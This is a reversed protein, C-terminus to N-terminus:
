ARVPDHARGGNRIIVDLDLSSPVSPDRDVLADVDKPLQHGALDADGDGAGVALGRRGGHGGPCEGFKAQIRGEDNTANGCVEAHVCVCAITCVEHGLGVLVVVHEEAQERAHFHDRIEFVVMRIAEWGEGVHPTGEFTEDVEERRITRQDTADLVLTRAPQERICGATAPRDNCVPLAGRGGAM